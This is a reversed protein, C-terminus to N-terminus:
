PKLAKGAQAIEDRVAGYDLADAGNRAVVVVDSSAPFLERDLRYTERVLRKIRNRGVSGAVKRTVTVGLRQRESALVIIVFHPTHM